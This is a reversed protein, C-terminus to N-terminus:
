LTYYFGRNNYYHIGLMNLTGRTTRKLGRRVRVDLRTPRFLGYTIRYFTERPLPRTIRQLTM